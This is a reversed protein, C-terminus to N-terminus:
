TLGRPVGFILINFYYKLYQICWLLANQSCAIKDWRSLHSTISEMYTARIEVRVRTGALFEKTGALFRSIRARRQGKLYQEFEQAVPQFATMNEATTAARDCFHVAVRASKSPAALRAPRLEGSQPRVPRTYDCNSGM